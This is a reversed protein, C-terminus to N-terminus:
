KIINYTVEDSYVSDLYGRSSIDGALAMVKATVSTAMPVDENRGSTNDGPINWEPMLTIEIKNSGIIQVAGNDAAQVRVGDERDTGVLSSGGTSTMVATMEITNIIKNGSRCNASTTEIMYGQANPVLDWTVTMSRVNIDIKVNQPTELKAVGAANGELTKCGTVSLGATLAIIIFLVAIRRTLRQNDRNLNM